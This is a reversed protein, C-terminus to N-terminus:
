AIDPVRYREVKADSVAVGLGPGQPLDVTADTNM